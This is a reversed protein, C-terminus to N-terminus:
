ENLEKYSCGLSKWLSGILDEYFWISQDAYHVRFEYNPEDSRWVVMWAEGLKCVVPYHVFEIFYKIGRNDRVGKQYFFDASPHVISNEPWKRYGSAILDTEYNM